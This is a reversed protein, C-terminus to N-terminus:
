QNVVNQNNKLTCFSTKLQNLWNVTETKIKM